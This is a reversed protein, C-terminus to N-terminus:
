FLVGRGVVKMGCGVRGESGGADGSWEGEESLSKSVGGRVCVAGVDDGGEVFAVGTAEEPFDGAVAGVRFIFHVHAQPRLAELARRLIPLLRFLLAILDLLHPRLQIRIFSRALPAYPLIANAPRKPITTLTPYQPYTHDCANYPAPIITIMIMTLLSM